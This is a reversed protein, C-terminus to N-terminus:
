YIHILSLTLVLRGDSLAAEIRAAGEVSFLLRPAADEYLGAAYIETRGFPAEEDPAKQEAYALREGDLWAYSGVKGSHSLRISTCDRELRRLYYLDSTYGNNAADASSVIYAAGKGGPNM